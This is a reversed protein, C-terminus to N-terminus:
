VPAREAGGTLQEIIEDYLAELKRVSVRDSFQQLVRERAAAGIREREQPNELLHLIRQSLGIWDGAPALCGTTGDLIVEELEKGSTAVIPAAEAMAELVTLPLALPPQMVVVTCAAAFLARLDPVYGTFVAGAQELDPRLKDLPFGQSGVGAMVVQVDPASSQVSATLDLVARADAPLFRVPIVVLRKERTIRLAACQADVESPPRRAPSVGNPILCIQDRAVGLSLLEPRLAESPAICRAQAKFAYAVLPRAVPNLGSLPNHLTAVRAPAGAGGLGSATTARLGHAHLIDFHGHRLLSALQVSRYVLGLPGGSDTLELPHFEVGRMSPRLLDKEMAPPAALAIEFRARNIHELLTMVHTRM